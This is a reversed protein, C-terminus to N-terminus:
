FSNSKENVLSKDNADELVIPITAVLELGLLKKEKSAMAQMVEENFVVNKSIVIQCTHPNYMLYAKSMNHYGVFLSKTSRPEMKGGILKVVHIYALCGSVSNSNSADRVVGRADGMNVVVVKADQDNRTPLCTGV